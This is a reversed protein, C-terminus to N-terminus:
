AAQREAVLGLDKRCVPGIGLARSEDDTLLKNCNWCNGIEDAYRKRAAEIGVALIGEVAAAQEDRSLRVGFAVRGGIVENVFTRGEWKGKGAKICFFDLDNGKRSPIAYYGLPVPFPEPAPAEAKAQECAEPTLHAAKWGQATKVIRGAREAVYVGCNACKGGFQNEKPARNQRPAATAQREPCVAHRVQWKGDPKRSCFGAEAPVKGRCNVCWGDYQNKRETM